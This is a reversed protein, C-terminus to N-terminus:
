WMVKQGKGEPALQSNEDGNLWLIRSLEMHSFEGQQGVLVSAPAMFLKVRLLSGPGLRRRLAALPRTEPIRSDHM